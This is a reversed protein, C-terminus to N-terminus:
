RGKGGHVLSKILLVDLSTSLAACKQQEPTNKLDNISYDASYSVQWTNLESPLYFSFEYDRTEYPQYVQISQQGTCSLRQNASLMQQQSGRIQIPQACAPSYEYVPAPNTNQITVQLVANTADTSTIALLLQKDSATIPQGTEKNLLRISRQVGQCTDSSVAPAIVAYQETETVTSHDGPRTPKSTGGSGGLSAGGASLGEGCGSLISLFLLLGLLNINSM